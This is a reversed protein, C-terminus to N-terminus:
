LQLHLSKTPLIFFNKFGMFPNILGNMLWISIAMWSDYQFQNSSRKSLRQFLAVFFVKWDEQIMHNLWWSSTWTWTSDKMKMSIRQGDGFLGFSWGKWGATEMVKGGMDNNKSVWPSRGIQCTAAVEQGRNWPAWDRPPNKFPWKPHRIGM